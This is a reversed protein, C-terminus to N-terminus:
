KDKKDPQPALTVPPIPSNPIGFTLNTPNCTVSAPWHNDTVIQQCEHALLGAEYGMEIQLKVIKQMHAALQKHQKATPTFATQACCAAVLFFPVLYKM